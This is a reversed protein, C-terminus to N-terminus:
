DDRCGCLHDVCCEAKEVLSRYINEVDADEGVPALIVDEEIAQRIIDM